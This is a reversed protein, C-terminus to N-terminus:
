RQMRKGDLVGQLWAAAITNNVRSEFSMFPDRLAKRLEDRFLKPDIPEPGDICMMRLNFLHADLEREM